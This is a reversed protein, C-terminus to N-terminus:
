MVKRCIHGGGVGPVGAFSQELSLVLVDRGHYSILSSTLPSGRSTPLQHALRIDIGWTTIEM